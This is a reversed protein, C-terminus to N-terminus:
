SRDGRCDTLQPAFVFPLLVLQVTLARLVDKPFLLNDRSLSFGVLALVLFVSQVESALRLSRLSAAALAFGLVILLTITTAGIQFMDQSGGTLLAAWKFADVWGTFVIALDTSQERPPIVFEWWVYVYWIAYLLPGFALPALRMLARGAPIHDGARRARLWTILEYVAIAMPVLLFPEKILCAAALVVTATVRRRRRWAYLGVLLAAVGAPESTLVTVSFVMGPNLAVALGTWPSLRLDAALLSAAAGAIGACALAVALMADPLVRPQGASALWALWAFGPHSYRYSPRDILGHERGQAIPDRAIAYYYVGDYHSSTPWLVFDPDTARAVAAIPEGAGVHVLVSPQFVHPGMAALAAAFTTAMAALACCAAVKTVPRFRALLRRAAL